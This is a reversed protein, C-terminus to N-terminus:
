RANVAELSALVAARKGTSQAALVAVPAARARHVSM